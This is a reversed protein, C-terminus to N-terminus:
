FLHELGIHNFTQEEKELVVGPYSYKKMIINVLSFQSSPFFRQVLPFFTPSNELCISKWPVPASPFSFM